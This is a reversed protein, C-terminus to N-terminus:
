AAVGQSTQTPHESLIRAFDAQSVLPMLKEIIARLARVEGRLTMGRVICLFADGASEFQEDTLTYHRLVSRLRRTRYARVAINSFREKMAEVSEDTTM